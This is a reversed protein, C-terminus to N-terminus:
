CRGGSGLVGNTGMIVGYGRGSGGADGPLGVCHGRSGWKDGARHPVHTGMGVPSTALVSCM